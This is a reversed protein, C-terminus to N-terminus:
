TDGPPACQRGFFRGILQPMRSDVFVQFFAPIGWVGRPASDGHGTTKDAIQILFMNCEFRDLGRVDVMIQSLFEPEIALTVLPDWPRHVM